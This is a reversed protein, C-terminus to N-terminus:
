PLTSTPPPLSPISSKGKELKPTCMLKGNAQFVMDCKGAKITVCKAANPVPSDGFLATAMRSEGVFVEFTRISTQLVVKSHKTRSATRSERLESWWSDPM